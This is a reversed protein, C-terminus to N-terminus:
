DRLLEVIRRGTDRKDCFYFQVGYAMIAALIAEYLGRGDTKGYFSRWAKLVATDRYKAGCECLIILQTGAAHARRVERYFRARDKSLLNRALEDLSQKRDIIREPHGEIMYDGTPLGVTVYEYGQRYFYAKIHKIAEPHERSDILIKM